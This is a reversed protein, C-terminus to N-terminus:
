ISEGSRTWWSKAAPHLKEWCRPSWQRGTALADAIGTGHEPRRLIRQCACEGAEVMHLRGHAGSAMQWQMKSVALPYVEDEADADDDGNESSFIDDDSISASSSSSVSEDGSIKKDKLVPPSSGPIEESLKSVVLKANASNSFSPKCQLMDKIDKKSPWYKFLIKWDPYMVTDFQSYIDIEDRIFKGYALNAILIMKRKREAQTCLRGDSYLNPMAVRTKAAHDTWGGLDVRVEPPEQNLDAITPVVRRASYFGSIMDLEPLM